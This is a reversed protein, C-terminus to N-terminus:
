LKRLDPLCVLALFIFFPFSALYPSAPSVLGLQLHFEGLRRIRPLCERLGLVIFFPLHLLALHPFSCFALSFSPARLRRLRICSLSARAPGHSTGPHSQNELSPILHKGQQQGPQQCLTSAQKM